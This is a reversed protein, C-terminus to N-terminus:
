RMQVAAKYELLHRKWIRMQSNCLLNRSVQMALIRNNPGEAARLADRLNKGISAAPIVQISTDSCRDPVTTASDPALEALESFHPIDSSYFYFWGFCVSTMLVASAAIVLLARLAVRVVANMAKFKTTYALAM